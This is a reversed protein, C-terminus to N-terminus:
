TKLSSVAHVASYCCRRQWLSRPSQAQCPLIWEAAERKKVLRVSVEECEEALKQLRASTKEDLDVCRVLTSLRLM